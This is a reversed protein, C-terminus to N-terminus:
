SWPSWTENLHSSAKMRRRWLGFAPGFATKAAATGMPGAYTGLRLMWFLGSRRAHQPYTALAWHVARRAQVRNGIALDRLGHLGVDARLYARVVDDRVLGARQLLEDELQFTSLYEDVLFKLAGSRAQQATQNQQHWRYAFLDENLFYVRDAEGLM